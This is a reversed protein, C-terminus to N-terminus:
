VLSVHLSVDFGGLVENTDLGYSLDISARRDKGQLRKRFDFHPVFNM